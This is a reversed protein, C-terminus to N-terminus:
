QTEIAAFRSATMFSTETLLRELTCVHWAQDETIFSGSALVKLSPHELSASKLEDDPFHQIGFVKDVILGVFLDGREFVIVRKKRDSAQEGTLLYRADTIPLLRGRVNAVGLVWPQVGPLKTLPPLELTEVVEELPVLLREGMLEFGVGSWYTRIEVQAPLDAANRLSQRAVDVLADFASHPNESM